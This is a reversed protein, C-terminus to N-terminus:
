KSSSPCNLSARPPDLVAHVFYRYSEREQGYRGRTTTGRKEVLEVKAQCRIGSALLDKVKQDLRGGEYIMSVGYFVIFLGIGFGALIGKM